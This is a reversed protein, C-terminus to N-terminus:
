RGRRAARRRLAFAGGGALAVAAVAVVIWVGAPVGDDDPTDPPAAEEAEAVATPVYSSAGLFTGTYISGDPGIETAAYSSNECSNPLRELVAELGERQTPDVGSLSEERCPENAGPAWGASEGTAFDVMEIGWTGERLGVGYFLGTDRSMTPIGNPISIADNAWVTECTRTEPDWDIREIGTPAQAPDGGELAALANALTPPLGALASEDTLRNSVHVTAYDSVLVSQESLSVEAEPDGFTVPVECAIRPDAGPRVPEWGEPIDGRWLLVLHMLQQGDTIVVFRDDETATGMLSPTSGSGAGLRIASGGGTEYPASWDVRLTGEGPDWTLGHARTSSVVYVGGDEDAALSNSVTELDEAPVTEDACADGNLPVAVVAEPSMADPERPVTGVVAQETVYVVHGDYTMTAGVIRDDPRCFASDPLEFRTALAIPSFRDGPTADEYVELARQRGVIFRGDADLLNYAGTVGGEVTEPPDDEREAPLYLDIVEGTDHDLKVVARTDVTNVLSGWVAIGGDDYPATFQLQIPVGPLGVHRAELEADPAPGPLPSSGQAYSSRHSAAWPSDALTPNEPPEAAAVLVVALVAVVALRRGPLVRGASRARVVHSVTREAFSRSAM